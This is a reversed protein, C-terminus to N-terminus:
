VGHKVKQIMIDQHEKSLAIFYASLGGMRVRLSKHKMPNIQADILDEPKVGTITLMLGGLDM